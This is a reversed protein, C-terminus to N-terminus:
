VWPPTLGENALARQVAPPLTAATQAQSAFPQMGAMLLPLLCLARRAVALM